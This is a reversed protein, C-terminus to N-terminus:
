LYVWYMSFINGEFYVMNREFIKMKWVVYISIKNYLIQKNKIYFKM